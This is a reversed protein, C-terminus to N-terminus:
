SRLCFSRISDAIVQQKPTLIKNNQWAGNLIVRKSTLIYPYVFYEREQHIQGDIRKLEGSNAVDNRQPASTGILLLIKKGLSLKKELRGPIDYVHGTNSNSQESPNQVWGCRRVGVSPKQLDERLRPTRGRGSAVALLRSYCINRSPSVRSQRSVM